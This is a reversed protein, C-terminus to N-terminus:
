PKGGSEYRLAPSNLRKLEKNWNELTEFLAESNSTEGLLRAM